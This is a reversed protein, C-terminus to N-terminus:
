VPWVQIACWFFFRCVTLYVINVFKATGALGDNRMTRLKDDSTTKSGMWNSALGMLYPTFSLISVFVPLILQLVFDWKWSWDPILCGLSIIDVQSVSM